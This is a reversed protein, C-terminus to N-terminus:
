KYLSKEKKKEIKNDQNILKKVLNSKKEKLNCKKSDLLRFNQM